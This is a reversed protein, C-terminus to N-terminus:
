RALKLLLGRVEDLSSRLEPGDLKLLRKLRKEAEKMRGLGSELRAIRIEARVGCPTARYLKALGELYAIGTEVSM